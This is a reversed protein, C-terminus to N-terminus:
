KVSYIAPDFQKHCAVCSDYLDAGVNFVAEKNREDIAKVMLKSQAIMAQTRTVWDTNGGTRTPLLLLNGSEVLTVAAARIENWEEDTQPAKEFEGEKTVITGVSEWVVDANPDLISAMLEKVSLTTDFPPLAGASPQSNCSTISLLVLPALWLRIRM